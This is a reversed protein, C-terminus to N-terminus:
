YCVKNLVATALLDQYAKPEFYHETRHRRSNMKVDGNSYPITEANSHTDLAIESVASSSLIPTRLTEALITEILQRLRVQSIESFDNQNNNHSSNLRQNNHDSIVGPLDLKAKIIYIIYFVVVAIVVYAGTLVGMMFDMKSENPLMLTSTDQSYEYM